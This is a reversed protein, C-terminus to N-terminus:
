LAIYQRVVMVRELSRPTPQVTMPALREIDARPLFYLLTSEPPAVGRRGIGRTAQNGFLSDSWAAMFARAEDASLGARILEATFPEILTDARPLNPEQGGTATSFSLEGVQADHVSGAGDRVFFVPHELATSLAITAAPTVAIPFSTGQALEGRYFLLRAAQAGVNVCAGDSTEYTPLDAVECIHDSTQCHARAAQVASDNAASQAGPPCQTVTGQWVIHDVGTQSTPTPWTEIMAGAIHVEVRVDLSPVNPDLHFYVVPKRMPMPPRPTPRAPHTAPRSAASGPGAALEIQGDSYVDILGWERVDLPSTPPPSATPVPPPPAQVASEQTPTQPTAAPSGCGLLALSPLLLPAFFRM